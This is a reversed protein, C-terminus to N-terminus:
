RGELDRLWLEVSVLRWLGPRRALAADSGKLWRRLRGPRLLDAARSSPGLWQRVQPAIEELWRREPTAFGLKDRRLRVTEPVLGRTAERLIAKTWGDRILAGAPLALAREVLRYDLFPTRAEVGFAMSSRDEYRLLAPLSTSLINARREALLTHRPLHRAGGNSSVLGPDLLRSPVRGHTAARSVAWRRMRGPAPLRHYALMGLFFAVPRGTVDHALRAQHLAARLGDRAAVEALYPGFHYHYGALVEDAGQGDLLVKVGADRALSM